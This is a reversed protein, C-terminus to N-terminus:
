SGGSGAATLKGGLGEPIYRQCATAPAAVLRKGTLGQLRTPLPFAGEPNPDPWDAVGERHMCQAFSRLKAMDAASVPGDDGKAQRVFRECAAPRQQPNPASAPFGWAGNLEIPDPFSPYGHARMCRAVQLLASREDTGSARDPGTQGGSDGGCGALLSVAAVGGVLVKRLTMGGDCM